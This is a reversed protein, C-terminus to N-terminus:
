GQESNKKIEHSLNQLPDKPLLEQTLLSSIRHRGHLGVIGNVNQWIGIGAAVYSNGSVYHGAACLCVHASTNGKQKESRRGGTPNEYNTKEATWEDGEM